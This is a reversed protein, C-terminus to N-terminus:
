ESGPLQHNGPTFSSRIEDMTMYHLRATGQYSASEAVLRNMTTAHRREHVYRQIDPYVFGGVTLAFAFMSEVIPIFPVAIIISGIILGVLAFALRAAVDGGRWVGFGTRELENMREAEVTYQPLAAFLVEKELAEWYAAGGGFEDYARKIQALKEKATAALAHELEADPLARRRHECEQLVAFVVSGFDYEPGAINLM